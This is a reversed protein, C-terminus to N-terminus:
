FSSLEVPVVASLDVAGAVILLVDHKVADGDVLLLSASRKFACQRDGQIRYLFEFHLNRAGVSACVSTADSLHLEHGAATAVHPGPPVSSSNLSIGASRPFLACIPGLPIKSLYRGNEVSLVRVTGLVVSLPALTCVYRKLACTSFFLFM